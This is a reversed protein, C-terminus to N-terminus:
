IAETVTLSTNYTKGGAASWSPMSKLYGYVTLKSAGDTLAESDKDIIIWLPKHTGHSIFMNDLTDTEDLTCFEIDGGLSKVLPLENIFKQGYQSSKINSKDQYGYSFSSISVSNQPLNVREGIFVHGLEVYSGQGTFTIEVFRHVVTTIYSYGMNQSPVLTLNYVPSGSFDTSVSTRYSAVTMGFTGTPDGVLALTDISRTQLLDIEIVVANGTSRFKVSPSANDLNSIPFQANETGTTLTKTGSSYFNESLFNIGSM